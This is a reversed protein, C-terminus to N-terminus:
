LMKLKNELQMCHNFALAPFNACFVWLAYTSEGATKYREGADMVKALEYLIKLHTESNDSSM